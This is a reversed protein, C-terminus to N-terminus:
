PGIPTTRTSVFGDFWLVGAIGASMGASPGLLVTDLRYAGTDLGSLSARLAGDVQLSAGATTGSSWAVEIAHPVDGITVWGTYTTGGKRSVGLRLRLDVGSTHQYQVRLITAEGASRGAFIDIAKSGTVTARPAFWFRARYAAEASPSSDSVYAAAKGALLVALGLDGAMAAGPQVVLRSAGVSGSWAALDGTEFGDAFIGDTPTVSLIAPAATGWAGLADRARVRVLREGYPLGALAVSGTVTEQSSNFAGDAAVMAQGNGARPDAGIYLEAGTVVSSVDVASATVTAWAAGRTPYPSTSASSVTPGARDLVLVTSGTAGWNGRADRGRVFVTHAGDALGALTLPTIAGNVTVTLSGFAGDLPQGTGLPGVVDIFWEAAAVPSGGTAADDVVAAVVVQSRGDSPNPAALVGSTTPGATDLPLPTAVVTPTPAPSLTPSPTPTPTPSPGGTLTVYAAYADLRGSGFTNDSGAQGLDVAATALASRLQAVSAEPVASRLLAVAGAVHPAALSTGTAAAYGGFLDSPRVAVGPAVLDPYTRATGGCTTPGRSSLSYVLDGNDVAGVALAEPNNGPSASTSAGPGFNGAAFVPVIGAADLAALDPQFTLICGPSGFTWSNNVVDPGDPTAPLGDPDLLWQFGAHIDSTSAVGSDDFIKVAIWAADPAVGIASGGSAGGVMVGMTQTGHGSADFPFTPHQGNPDYWSNTGGRWQAALDPHTADVGTDMSAVVTGQGRTGADWVTPANVLAVNPEIPSDATATEPAPAAITYDPDIRALEPRRAVERIASATAVVAIANQIWIPTYTVISGDHRRLELFQILGLQSRSATRRLGEIVQRQREARNAGGAGRPDFQDRLVLIAGVRADPPLQDLVASLAPDITALSREDGEPRSAADGTTAVVLTLAVAFAALARLENRM